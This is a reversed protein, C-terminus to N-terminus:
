MNHSLLAWLVIFVVAIMASAILTKALADDSATSTRQNSLTTIFDAQRREELKRKEEGTARHIEDLYFGLRHSHAANRRDDAEERDVERRYEAASKGFRRAM